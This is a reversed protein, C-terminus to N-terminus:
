KAARAYPTGVYFKEREGATWAKFFDGIIATLIIENSKGTRASEARLKAKIAKPVRVNLQTENTM